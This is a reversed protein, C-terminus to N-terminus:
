KRSEGELAHVQPTIEQKPHPLRSGTEVARSGIGRHTGATGSPFTQGLQLLPSIGPACQQSSCHKRKKNIVSQGWDSLQSRKDCCRWM